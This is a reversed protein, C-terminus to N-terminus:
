TGGEADKATLAQFRAELQEDTLGEFRHAIEQKQTLPGCVEERIRTAAKLVAGAELYSVRGEMVDVIRQLSRGALLQSQEDAGDPLRLKASKIAKVEGYALTNPTGPKRGAGPRKGGNKRPRSGAGSSDTESSKAREGSM